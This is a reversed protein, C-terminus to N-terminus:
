SDTTLRFFQVLSHLARFHVRVEANQIVASVYLKETHPGELRQELPVAECVELEIETSPSREEPLIHNTVPM